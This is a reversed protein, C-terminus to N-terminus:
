AGASGTPTARDRAEAREAPTADHGHVPDPAGDGERQRSRFRRVKARNGCSQMDCWRRRGGRSTDEFVWRCADNACIRFRSTDGDALAEALAEAVRALAEGLPDGEEHRHSVAIGAVTPRLEPPTAHRLTDNVLEVAAPDVSRGEVTADWIERLAGRTHGVRALWAGPDGDAQQRLATEHALSRAGFWGIAADVTPIHDDPVGDTGDLELTNIFDLCVGLGAVHEHDVPHASRPDTTVTIM